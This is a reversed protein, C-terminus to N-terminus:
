LRWIGVDDVYVTDELPVVEFDFSAAEPDTVTIESELKTWTGAAGGQAVPQYRGLWQGDRGFLALAVEAQGHVWASARHSRGAEVPIRNNARFPWAVGPALPRTKVGGNAKTLLLARAGGHTVERSYAVGSGEFYDWGWDREFGPNIVLNGGQRAIQEELHAPIDTHCLGALEDATPTLPAHDAVDGFFARQMADLMSCGRQRTPEVYSGEGFENWTGILALGLEPDVSPKLTECMRGFQEPSQGSRFLGREGYWPRSDWGPSVCPIVPLKEGEGAKQWVPAIAPLIDAYPAELQGPAMGQDAYCYLTCADFGAEGMQRLDEDTPVKICVFYLGGWPKAAESMTRLVKRTGEAGFCTILCDPRSLVLVNRGDAVRLYNPQSLYREGIVSVLRLMDAETYAPTGSEENCWMLSFDMRDRLSAGLFGKDLAANHESVTGTRYDYYWDFVWFSVGHQTAQRIHWDQVAPLDDRYCGLIPDRGGYETIPVWRDASFWGPFYYCGVRPPGEALATGALAYLLLVLCMRRLPSATPVATLM